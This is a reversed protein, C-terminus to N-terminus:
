TRGREAAVGDHDASNTAIADLSAAALGGPMRWARGNRVGMARRNMRRVAVLDHIPAANPDLLNAQRLLDPM